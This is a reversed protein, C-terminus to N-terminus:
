NHDVLIKLVSKSVINEIKYKEKDYKLLNLQYRIVLYMKLDISNKLLRKM